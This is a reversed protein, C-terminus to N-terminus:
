VSKHETIINKLAAKFCFTKLEKLLKDNNTQKKNNHLQKSVTNYLAYIHSSKYTPAFSLCNNLTILNKAKQTPSFLSHHPRPLAQEECSHVANKSLNLKVHHANMWANISVLYATIWSSVQNKSTLILSKIYLSFSLPRLVSGQPVGTPM